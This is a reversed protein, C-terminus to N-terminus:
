WLLSDTQDHKDPIAHTRTNLIFLAQPDQGYDQAWNRCQAAWQATALADRTERDKDADKAYSPLTLREVKFNFGQTFLQEMEDSITGLDMATSPDNLDVYGGYDFNVIGVCARTYHAKPRPIVTRNQKEELSLTAMANYLESQQEGLAQLM